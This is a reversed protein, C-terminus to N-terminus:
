RRAGGHLRSGWRAHYVLSKLLSMRAQRRVSIRQVRSYECKLLRNQPKGALFAVTPSHNEGVATEFHQVGSMNPEQFLRPGQAVEQNHAQVTVRAHPLQLAVSPWNPRLALSRFDQSRHFTNIRYHDEVRKCWPFQNRAQERVNQHFAAVPRWVLDDATFFHLRGAAPDRRNGDQGTIGGSGYQLFNAFARTGRARFGSENRM